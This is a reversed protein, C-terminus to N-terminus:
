RANRGSHLVKKGANYAMDILWRRGYDVMNRPWREPHTLICVNEPEADAIMRILDDTNRPQRGHKGGVVDKTKRSQTQSWSRGSDSYYAFRTYDLSLYPEGILGFDSLRRYRWIEKNDHKTLPNGHMCATRVAFQSRLEALEEEFLQIAKTMDGSCRDLTEYHYGVEHGLDAIKRVLDPRFTRKKMRFYYTAHLNHKHEVEAVDVAYSCDEDIDHRLIVCRNEEQPCVVYDQFTLNAYPSGSVIECLKEYKGLTFDRM